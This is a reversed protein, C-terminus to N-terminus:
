KEGTPCTSESKSTTRHPKRFVFLGVFVCVSVGWIINRGELWGERTSTSPPWAMILYCSLSLCRHAVPFMAPFKSPTCKVVIIVSLNKQARLSLFWITHLTSIRNTSRKSLGDWWKVVPALRESERRQPPSQLM